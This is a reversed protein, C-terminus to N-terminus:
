LARTDSGNRQRHGSFKLSSAEPVHEASHLNGPAHHVRKAKMFKIQAVAPALSRAMYLIMWQLHREFFGAVVVKAILWLQALWLSEGSESPVIRASPTTIQVALRLELAIKALLPLM